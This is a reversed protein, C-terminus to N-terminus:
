CSSPVSEHGCGLGSLLAQLGHSLLTQEKGKQPGQYIHFHLSKFISRLWGTHLRVWKMDPLLIFGADSSTDEYVIRESEAQVNVNSM